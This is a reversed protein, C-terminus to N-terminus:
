QSKKTQPPSRLSKQVHVRISDFPSLFFVQFLFATVYILIMSAMMRHMIWFVHNHMLFRRTFYETRIYLYNSMYVAFSLRCIGKLLNFTQVPAVGAEPSATESKRRSEQWFSKFTMVYVFIVLFSIMQLTRTLVVVVFSMSHPILQYSNYAIAICTQVNQIVSIAMLWKLHGLLGSVRNPFLNHVHGYAFLFGTFYSPLYTTVQVTVYSFYESIKQASPFPTYLTGTTDHVISTHATKVSGLVIMTLSFAIGNRASRAFIYVGAIGIVFLQMDVSSYFSHGGCIDIGDIFYNNIFLLNLWWNRSCKDLNFAAVRKFFPGSGTLPWLFELATLSIMAPLFRIFRDIIAFSYSLKGTVAMPYVILFVAAGSIFSTTVLGADNMLSQTEPSSFFYNLIDHKDMTATSLPAEVNVLLHALTGTWIVVLKVIDFVLADYNSPKSYFIKRSSELLSLSKLFESQPIKPIQILVAPLEDEFNLIFHNWIQHLTCALVVGVISIVFFMSIIQKSTMNLLRNRFSIDDTTDCTIDGIVKISYPKMLSQLHTKIEQEGCGAPLCLANWFPYIRFVSARSLDFTEGSRNQHTIPFMDIMCYKGTVRGATMKNGIRLCQDYDGIATLTSRFLGAPTKGSSDIFHYAWEEDHAMAESVMLLESKCTASLTTSNILAGSRVEDWFIQPVGATMFKYNHTPDSPLAGTEPDCSVDHCTKISDQLKCSVASLLAGTFLLVFSMIKCTDNSM